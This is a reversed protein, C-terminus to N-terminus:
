GRDASITPSVPWTTGGLFGLAKASIIAAIRDRVAPARRAKPRDARTRILVFNERPAVASAYWSSQCPVTLYYFIALGAVSRIAPRPKCIEIV